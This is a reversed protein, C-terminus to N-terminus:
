AQERVGKSEAQVKLLSEAMAIRGGARLSLYSLPFFMLAAVVFLSVGVAGSLFKMTTLFLPAFGLTYTVFYSGAYWYKLLRRRRVSRYKPLFEIKEVPATSFFELLRRAGIFNRIARRPYQLGLLYSVEDATM